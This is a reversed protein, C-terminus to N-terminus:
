SRSVSEGSALAPQAQGVGLSDVGTSRTADLEERLQNLYEVEQRQELDVCERYSRPQPAQGQGYAPATARPKDQERSLWNTIFAKIGRRTKRKKENGILWGKMARLAQLVDVNPYLPALETVFDQTVEFESGDNLPLTCIVIEHVTPTSNTELEACYSEIPSESPPEIPSELYWKQSQKDAHKPVIVSCSKPSNAHVNQSSEVKPVIGSKPSNASAKQSLGKKPIMGKKPSNFEADRGKVGLLQYVSVRGTAGTKGVVAILGMQQLEALVKMVTKRNMTTDKCLREISPYCRFTEDARDALALLTCRLAVRKVDQRWAWISAEISM